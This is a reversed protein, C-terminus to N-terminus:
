GLIMIMAFILICPGHWVMYSEFSVIGNWSGINGKKREKEGIFVVITWKNCEIVWKRGM